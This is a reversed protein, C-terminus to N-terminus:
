ERAEDRDELKRQRDRIDKADERAEKYAREQLAQLEQYAREEEKERREQRVEDRASGYAVAVIGGVLLVLPVIIM